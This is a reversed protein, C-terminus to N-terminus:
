QWETLSINCISWEKKVNNRYLTEKTTFPKSDPCLLLSRERTGAHMAWTFVPSSSTKFFTLSQKKFDPPHWAGRYENAPHPCPAAHFPHSLCPCCSTVTSACSPLSSRLPAPAHQQTPSSSSKCGTAPLHLLCFSPLLGWLLVNVDAM